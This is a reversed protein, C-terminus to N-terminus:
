IGADPGVKRIVESVYFIIKVCELVFEDDVDILVDVESVDGELFFDEHPHKMRFPVSDGASVLEDYSRGRGHKLVNIASVFMDFRVSLAEEGAVDLCKRVEEFGNRCSIREQVVSEFISLVGVAMAAKKVQIMRLNKVLRTAGSTQLADCTRAHEEGLVSLTFGVSRGVLDSYQHM